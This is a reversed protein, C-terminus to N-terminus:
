PSPKNATVAKKFELNKLISNMQTVFKEGESKYFNHSAFFILIVSKTRHQSIKLPYTEAKTWLINFDSIRSEFSKEGLLKIKKESILTNKLDIIKQIKEELMEEPHNPRRQKILHTEYKEIEKLLKAVTYEEPFLNFMIENIPAVVQEDGISKDLQFPYRHASLVDEKSIFANKFTKVEFNTTKKMSYLEKVVTLKRIVSESAFIEELYKQYGLLISNIENMSQYMDLSVPSSMSGFARDKLSKRRLMNKEPYLCVLAVISACYTLMIM